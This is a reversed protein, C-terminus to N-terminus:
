LAEIEDRLGAYYPAAFAPASKGEPFRRMFERVRPTVEELEDVVAIAEDGAEIFWQAGSTVKHDTTKLVVVPTGAVRAFITGHYRDTVIVRYRAYAEIVNEIREWAEKSDFDVGKWDVTTDVRDIPATEELKGALSDIEEYTYLKEGDNRACLLIGNREFSFSYSGILSTVVDPYLMVAVHPFLRKAKGFSVPDRALFLARPHPDIARSDKKLGSRSLEAISTPFFVVRNSAFASTVNRHAPEDIHLGDMTHGSQMIIIDEPAVVSKLLDITRKIGGNFEASSIGVVDWDPYNSGLWRYIVFKQAQDGLNSHQPIGFYWIRSCGNEPLQALRELLASNKKRWRPYAVATRAFRGVTRNLGTALTSIFPVSKLKMKIKNNM